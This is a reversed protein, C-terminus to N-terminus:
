RAPRIGLLQQQSTLCIVEFRHSGLLVEARALDYTFLRATRADFLTTFHEDTYEGAPTDPHFGPGITRVIRRLWRRAHRRSPEAHM